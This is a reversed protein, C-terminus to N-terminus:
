GQLILRRKKLVKHHLSRGEPLGTLTGAVREFGCRIMRPQSWSLRCCIRSARYLEHDRSKCVGTSLVERLWRRRRIRLASDLRQFLATVLKSGAFSIATSDLNAEAVFFELNAEFLAYVSSALAEQSAGGTHSM